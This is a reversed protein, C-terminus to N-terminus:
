NKKPNDRIPIEEYYCKTINQLSYWRNYYKETYKNEIWTIGCKKTEFQSYYNKWKKLIRNFKTVYKIAISKKTTAFIISKYFDEYSGGYYFVIYVKDEM